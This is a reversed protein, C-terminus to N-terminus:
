AYLVTIQWRPPHRQRNSAVLARDIAAAIM